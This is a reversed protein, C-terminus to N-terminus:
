HLLYYTVLSLLVLGLVFTRNSLLRIAIYAILTAIALDKLKIM